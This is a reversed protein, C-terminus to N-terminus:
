PELFGARIALRVLEAVSGARLKRMIASRHAEVTKETIGLDLAILRTRRGEAVLRVIERERPTLGAFPGPPSPGSAVARRVMADAVRRTFYPTDRALAEVAAVLERPDDGKLVYGRAGAALSQAALDESEDVTLVLVRTAPLSARIRRIVEVGSGEPLSLDIIAVDPRLSEALEMAERGNAAEGCVQWGAQDELIHRLGRRVVAHDDALLIRLM